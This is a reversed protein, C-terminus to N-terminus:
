GGGTQRAFGRCQADHIQADRMICRREKRRVRGSVQLSWACCRNCEVHAGNPLWAVFVDGVFRYPKRHLMM